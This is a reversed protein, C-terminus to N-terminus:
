TDLSNRRCFGAAELYLSNAVTPALATQKGKSYKVEVIGAKQKEGQPVGALSPVLPVHFSSQAHSSRPPALIPFGTRTVSAKHEPSPPSM